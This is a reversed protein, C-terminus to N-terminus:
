AKGNAEVQLDCNNIVLVGDMFLADVWSGILSFDELPNGDLIVLDATKGIDISGFEDELGLSRASNITAIKVAEVGSLQKGDPKGKLVHDFMRLELNMMAATCPPLSDNATTMPVGNEYFLCLNEFANAAKSDWAYMGSADIIGMMKPKGSACRKYGNMVDARLEPIFYEDAISAFTYTRDRFATLRDLEPHSKSRTGALKWSFFTYFVSITPDNICGAAKFAEMDENTLLADMPEHELSSVGAKVGRRFSDVSSHHMMSQVGRRRAQDAVASLQEITMIPIPKRTIVSKAQDGIKIVDAGREDIAKDVADRVLQESANIPITLTGGYEKSTDITGMIIRSKLSKEQLYSGPLGIAVAQLIRPGPIERKSIREKLIRNDRLDAEHADRIHTIGHALCEAMDKEKQQGMLRKIRKQDRLGQIMTPQASALHCHTNYLSPMVTKGQLDITFDPKFGNSEGDIATIAEIKGEHLIVTTGDDLYRGNVVDLIRGNVLEVRAQDGPEYRKVFNTKSTEKM